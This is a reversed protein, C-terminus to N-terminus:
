QFRVLSDGQVTIGNGMVRAGFLASFAGWDFLFDVDRTIEVNVFRASDETSACTDRFDQQRVGDCELFIDVSVDNADVNPAKAAEDRIYTTSGSSPRVALAYDTARQAAQEADIRAAVLTSVDIMGVLLLMLVPLGLALELASTGANDRWLSPRLRSILTM